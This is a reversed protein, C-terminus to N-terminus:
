PPLLDDPALMGSRILMQLDIEVQHYLPVPSNPDVPQIPLKAPLVPNPM